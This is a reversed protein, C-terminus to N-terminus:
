AQLELDKTEAEAIDKLKQSFRNKDFDEDINPKADEAEPKKTDQPKIDINFQSALRAINASHKAM